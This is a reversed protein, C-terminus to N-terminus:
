KLHKSGWLAMEYFIPLMDRGIETLSYEVRLPMENYQKRVIIHKEELTKLTTSLMTNTIGNLHRKLEGFRIIDYKELEFIIRSTWRGSLLELTKAVPCNDVSDENMIRLKLEELNM